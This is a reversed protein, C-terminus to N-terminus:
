PEDAACGAACHTDDTAARYAGGRARDRTRGPTSDNFLGISAAPATSARVAGVAEKSFWLAPKGCAGVPWGRPCPVPIDRYSNFISAAAGRQEHYWSHHSLGLRIGRLLLRWSSTECLGNREGLRIGVADTAM